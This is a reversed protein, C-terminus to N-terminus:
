ARRRMRVTVILLAVTVLALGIEAATLLARGAPALSSEPVPELGGPRAAFAAEPTALSDEKPAQDQEADTLTEPEPQQGADTGPEAARQVAPQETEAVGELPAEGALEASEQEAAQEEVAAGNGSPAETEDVPEAQMAELDAEAAELQAELQPGEEQQEGFLAQTAAPAASEDGAVAGVPQVLAPAAEQRLSLGALSNNALVDFGVVVVLALGALATSLQLAPYSRLGGLLRSLGTPRRVADATLQFDRPAAVAPISRLAQVTGRLEELQRLLGPEQQLRTKLAASEAPALEGDIYASLQTLDGASLKEGDTM